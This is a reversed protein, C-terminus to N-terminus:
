KFELLHRNETKTLEGNLEKYAKKFDSRLHSKLQKSIVAPKINKLHAFVALCYVTEQEPLAVERNAMKNYCSGCGGKFQYATNAFMVGFGMMIAIVDAAQPLFEKGGPPLKAKQMVLISALTQAFSAVLDQPQNIQQPNFSVYIHKNATESYDNSVITNDISSSQLEAKPMRYAGNVSLNPFQKYNINSQFEQPTILKIPWHSMGAYDVTRDFVSQAMELISSVSGPYFENTPLILKSHNDFYSADFEKIAWAFTDLIWDRSGSDLLPTTKFLQQFM